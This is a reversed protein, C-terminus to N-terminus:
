KGVRREESRTGEEGDVRSLYDLGSAHREGHLLVAGTSLLGSIKSM